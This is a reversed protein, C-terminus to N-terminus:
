FFKKFVLREKESVDKGMQLKIFGFNTLKLKEPLNYPDNYDANEQQRRKGYSSRVNQWLPYNRSVSDKDMESVNRSADVKLAKEFGKLFKCITFILKLVERWFIKPNQIAGSKAEKRM